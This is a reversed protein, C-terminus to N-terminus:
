EAACSLCRWEGPIPPRGCDRCKSWDYVGVRRDTPAARIEYSQPVKPRRAAFDVESTGGSSVAIGSM